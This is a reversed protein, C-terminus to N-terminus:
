PTEYLAVITKSLVLTDPNKSLLVELQEPTAKHRFFAVDEFLNVYKPDIRINRVFILFEKDSTFGANLAAVFDDFPPINIRHEFLKVLSNITKYSYNNIISHLNEPTYNSLIFFNINLKKLEPVTFGAELGKVMYPMYKNAKYLTTFDRMSFDGTFYMAHIDGPYKILRILEEMREIWTNVTSETQGRTAIFFRDLFQLANHSRGGAWNEVGSWELFPKHDTIHPIDHIIEDRWVPYALDVLARFNTPDSQSAEKYVKVASEVLLINKDHYEKDTRYFLTRTSRSVNTFERRKAYEEKAYDTTTVCWKSM